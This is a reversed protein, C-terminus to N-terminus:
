TRAASVCDSSKQFAGPPPTSSDPPLGEFSASGDEKVVATVRGRIPDLTAVVACTTADLVEVKVVGLSAVFGASGPPISWVVVTPSAYAGAETTRVLATQPSANSAYLEGSTPTTSGFLNCAAVLMAVFTLM